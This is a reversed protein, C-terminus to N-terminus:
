SEADAIMPMKTFPLDLLKQADVVRDASKSGIPQCQVDELRKDLSAFWRYESYEDKQQDAM